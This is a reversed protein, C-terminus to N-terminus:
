SGDDDDKRAEVTAFDCPGAEVIHQAYRHASPKDDFDRLICRSAGHGDYTDHSIPPVYGYVQWITM